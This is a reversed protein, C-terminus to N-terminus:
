DTNVVAGDFPVFNSERIMGDTLYDARIRDVGPAAGGGADQIYPGLMLWSQNFGEPTQTASVPAPALAVGSILALALVAGFVSRSANWAM